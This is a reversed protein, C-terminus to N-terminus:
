AAGDTQFLRGQLTLDDFSSVNEFRRQYIVEELQGMSETHTHTTQKQVQYEKDHLRTPPGFKFICCVFLMNSSSSAQISREFSYKVVISSVTVSERM